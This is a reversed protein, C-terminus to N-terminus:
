KSYLLWRDNYKYIWKSCNEPVEFTDYVQVSQKFNDTLNTTDKLYYLQFHNWDCNRDILGFVVSKEGRFDIFTLNLKEIKNALSKKFEKTNLNEDNLFIGNKDEEIEALGSRTRM